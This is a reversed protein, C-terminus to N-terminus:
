EGDRKIGGVGNLIRRQIQLMACLHEDDEEYGHDYGLLHLVGHVVLFQIEEFPNMGRELAYEVAVEPCIVIDGLPKHILVEPFEGGKSIDLVAFSLIDTAEDLQRYQLNLRRIDQSSVFNIALEVMDTEDQDSLASNVLRRIASRQSRTIPYEKQEDIISIRNMKGKNM